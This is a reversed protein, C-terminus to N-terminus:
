TETDRRAELIDLVTRAARASPGAAGGALREAVRRGAAIQRDRQVPDVLIDALAAALVDPRCREQLLEPVIGRDLVLNVLNVYDTRIVRRALVATLPNLRYAVIGPLGALAIELAVTGSAALAADSAAFADWKQDPGVAVVPVPWDAAQAAIRGATAPVTVLVVALPAAPDHALRAVCDRFIPLHRRVEGVRSGPLVAIVTAAPPIGHRARFGSGDAARSADEIAPHGVFTTTLGEAEFYPAEFPLLALLHHYLRAVKAARKPRWAWVQPAVYHIRALDEGALRRALRFNFGPSDITILADPRATRALREAEGLRKLIVPLRPVVEVLGMVALDDIPFLSALGEAAMAPGGVGIFEPAAPSLRRLAAMLGAGLQDGSPEGAVLMIKRCEGAQASVAPAM